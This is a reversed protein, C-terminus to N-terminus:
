AATVEHAVGRRIAEADVDDVRLVDDDAEDDWEVELRVGGAGSGCRADRGVAREILTRYYGEELGGVDCGLHSPLVPDPLPVDDAVLDDNIAADAALNWVRATAADVGARLARRHHDRLVHHAEHLLV